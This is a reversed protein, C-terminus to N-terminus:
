IVSYENATVNAQGYVGTRGVFNGYKTGWACQTLTHRTLQRAQLSQVTVQRTYLRVQLM